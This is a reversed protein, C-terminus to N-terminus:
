RPCFFHTSRGTGPIWPPHVLGSQRAMWQSQIYSALGTFFDMRFGLTAATLRESKEASENGARDVSTVLVCYNTGALLENLQYM